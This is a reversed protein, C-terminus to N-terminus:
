PNMMSIIFGDTGTEFRGLHKRFCYEEAMLFQMTFIKEALKVILVGELEVRIDVMRIKISVEMKLNPIHVYNCNEM